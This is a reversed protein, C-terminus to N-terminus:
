NERNEESTKPAHHEHHERTHQEERWPFKQKAIAFIYVIELIGFTNIILLAIFWGKEGRRAAVWLAWGKWALVWIIGILLFLSFGGGIFPSHSFFTSYNHM